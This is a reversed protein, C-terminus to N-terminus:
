RTSTCLLEWRKLQGACIMGGLFALISWLFVTVTWGFSEAIVAIGYTSLAAGIYTGSNLVGSVLSVVGTKSYYRPVFSILLLNAGNMCSVLLGLLIITLVPSTKRFVSIMAASLMCVAFLIAALKLENRIWRRRIESVAVISVIAFVPLIVGTLISINNGFQFTEAILSPMWATVGDRLSGMLIIAVLISILMGSWPFAGKRPEGSNRGSNREMVIQPCRMMWVALMIAAATAATYFVLKWTGLKILVPAILYLAVHGLHGGCTVAICATNYGDRDFLENMLKVLPPWMFAQALGNISWIIAMQMSTGCFPLLVNMFLTTGLGLGVLHKPQIRDGVFGSILQGAGYTIAMGTIPLSSAAKSLGTADIIEVLITNYNLRTIYSVFYVLVMLILATNLGKGGM